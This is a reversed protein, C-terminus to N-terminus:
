RTGHSEEVLLGSRRALSLLAESIQALTAGNASSRALVLVDFGVNLNPLMAWLSERILRKCRNRQVAGGVARGAVVGFRSQELENPSTYLVVLPHAYSKGLRRVRQIDTSRTLRYKRKM